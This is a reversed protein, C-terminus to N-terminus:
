MIFKGCIVHQSWYSSVEHYKCQKTFSMKGSSDQSEPTAVTAQQSLPLRLASRNASNGVENETSSLVSNTSLSEPSKPESLQM